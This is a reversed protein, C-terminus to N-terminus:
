AIEGYILGIDMLYISKKPTHVYAYPGNVKVALVKGAIKYKAIPLVHFNGKQLLPTSSTYLIQEPENRIDIEEDVVIRSPRPKHYFESFLFFGAIGVIGIIIVIFIRKM